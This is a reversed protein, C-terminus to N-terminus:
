FVVGGKLIECEVDSLRRPNARRVSMSENHVENDESDSDGDGMSGM